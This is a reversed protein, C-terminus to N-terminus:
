ELISLPWAASHLIKDTEKIAIYIDRLNNENACKEITSIPLPTNESDEKPDTIIKNRYEEKDKKKGTLCEEKFKKALDDKQPNEKLWSSIAHDRLDKQSYLIQSFEGAFMGISFVLLFVSLKLLDSIIKKMFIAKKSHKKVKDHHLKRILKKLIFFGSNFLPKKIM